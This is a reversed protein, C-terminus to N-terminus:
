EAAGGNDDDNPDDDDGAASGAPSECLTQSGGSNCLHYDTGPQLQTRSSIAYPVGAEDSGTMTIVYYAGTTWNDFGGLVAAAGQRVGEAQGTAVGQRVGQREGQEFGVRKGQAKGEARGTKEGQAKGQALGLQKGADFIERYGPGGREYEAEVQAKGAAIGDDYGKTDGSKEGESHGILYGGVGAIALVAVAIAIVAGISLRTGEGDTGAPPTDGPTAGPPTSGTSM